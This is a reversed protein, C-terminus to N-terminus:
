ESPSAQAQTLDPVLKEADFARSHSHWVNTVLTLIAKCVAASIQLLKQREERDLTHEVFARLWWKRADMNRLPLKKKRLFDELFADDRLKERQGRDICSLVFERLPHYAGRRLDACEHLEMFEFVQTKLVLPALDDALEGEVTVCVTHVGANELRIDQVYYVGNPFATAVRENFVVKDENQITVRLAAVKRSKVVSSKGSKTLAVYFGLYRFISYQLPIREPLLESWKDAIPFLQFGDPLAKHHRLSIPKLHKMSM